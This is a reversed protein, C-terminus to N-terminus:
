FSFAYEICGFWILKLYRQLSLKKERMQGTGSYRKVKENSMVWKM